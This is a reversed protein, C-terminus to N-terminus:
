RRYELLKRCNNIRRDKATEREAAKAKREAQHLTRKAIAQRVAMGLRGLRDKLLYDSAGCQMTRVAVEEGISGSVILIPIDTGQQQLIELARLADFQPLNYDCLIIDPSSKLYVLFDPETQVRTITPEFGAKRLEHTILRADVDSDEVVLVRLASNSV